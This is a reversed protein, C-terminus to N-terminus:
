HTAPAALPKRASVLIYDTLATVRVKEVGECRDIEAQSLEVVADKMPVGKRRLAQYKLTGPIVHNRISEISVDTFGSAELKRAYENRDYMNPLPASWRKCALRNVFGLPGFDPDPVCDALAIKGGPRLVRYAEQFFRERTDFHFACELATIKDFSAEPFPIDTASGLRLDMRDTLGREAVRARARDVHLQTINLGTIHKVGYKEVWYFDQEAYGFGVDLLEDEPGLEAAEAVLSALAGAAEPYTRAVKWYGLNLWLPKKPDVFGTTEGEVVDDGLLEYYNASDSSFLLKPLALFSRVLSM